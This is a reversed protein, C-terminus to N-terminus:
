KSPTPATSPTGAAPAADPNITIGRKRLEDVVLLASRNGRNALLQTERALKDLSGRLKKSEEIQKEQTTQVSRLAERERILQVTQFITWALYTLALLLVPFFVSRM